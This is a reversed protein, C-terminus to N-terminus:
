DGYLSERIKRFSKQNEPHSLTHEISSIERHTLHWNLSAQIELSDKRPQYYELTYYEINGEYWGQTFNLYDDNSIVKSKSLSRYTGGVPNLYKEIQQNHSSIEYNRESDRIQIIVVSETNEEFWKRFTFLYKVMTQIGYNDGVGADITRTVPKSPLQVYPTIFPFSANMRLVTSFQISDADQERFFSRFEVGGLSMDYEGPFNRNRTLYSVDSSAIYLRRGDNMIVPSFVMMPISANQEYPRYDCLRVGSFEPLNKALQDDFSYGRDKAYRQDGVKVKLKPMVIGTVLKFCVRNLLDTAIRDAYVPNTVEIEEGLQRRRYLERYYAAGVMGGSAGSILRVNELCQGESLSDLTQLCRFTFYSSRVGGGSTCIFVVKPKEKGTSFKWKELIGLNRQVDEWYKTESHVSDMTGSEYRAIAGEYDMGYAPHNFKRSNAYTFFWYGAVVVVITLLGIKRFWFAFAAVLMLALSFLVLMSVSAPIQFFRVNEMLGLVLISVLLILELFLANGHNQNLIRVMKRFDPQIEKNVKGIRTFSRFYFDIRYRYLMGKKAKGIIVRGSNLEKMFAEGFVKVVNKNTGFFYTSIIILILATGVYMILLYLIVKFRFGGMAEVQFDIFLWSYTIMFALPIVFNNLFFIFFPFREIALFHFRYSDLIYIAIQYAGIFSGFGIGLLFMSAYGFEGLYEPELFLYPIGFSNGFNQTVTAFLIAWFLLIVKHNRVQFVLLQIPLSFYISELINGIKKM